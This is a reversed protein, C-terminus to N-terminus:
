HEESAANRNWNPIEVVVDTEGNPVAQCGLRSTAQVGPALDLMDEEADTGENMPEQGSRVVVHCTSCACVGGCAHDMEIGHKQALSLISGPLGDGNTPLDDPDVDVTIGAPEFTLRYKQKPLEYDVREIYPNTGGM